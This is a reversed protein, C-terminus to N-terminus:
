VKRSGFFATRMKLLRDEIVDAAQCEAQCDVGCGCLKDIIQRAQVVHELGANIRALDEKGLVPQSM